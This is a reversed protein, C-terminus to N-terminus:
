IIDRWQAAHHVAYDRPHPLSEVRGSEAACWAGSWQRQTGVFEELSFWMESVVIIRYRHRSQRFAARGMAADAHLFHM